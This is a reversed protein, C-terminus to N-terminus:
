LNNCYMTLYKTLRTGAKKRLIHWFNCQQRARYSVDISRAIIKPLVTAPLAHAISHNDTKEGWRVLKSSQVVQPNTFRSFQPKQEFVIFNYRRVFLCVSCNFVCESYWSTVASGRKCDVTYVSGSCPLSRLVFGDTLLARVSRVYGLASRQTLSPLQQEELRCHFTLLCVVVM